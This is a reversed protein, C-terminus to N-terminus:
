FVYISFDKLLVQVNCISFIHLTGLVVGVNNSLNPLCKRLIQLCAFFNSM